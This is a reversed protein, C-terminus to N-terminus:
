RNIAEVWLPSPMFTLIFILVCLWATWYRGTSLVEEDDPLPPHILGTFRGFMAWILFVHSLWPQLPRMADIWAGSVWRQADMEFGALMSYAITPAQVCLGLIGFALLARFIFKARQESKKPDFAHLIHGGDLQGMPLLNIATVLFGGWAGLWIPHAILVEGPALEPRLLQLFAFSLLSDGFFTLPGLNEPITTSSVEVGVAMAVFAVVFGAIPGAAGIDMLQNRTAQETRMTIVAGMTGLPPLPLPIFYPLSAEVGHYRAVFYHGMEHAVLISLLTLSFLWGGVWTTTLVTAGFLLWPFTKRTLM